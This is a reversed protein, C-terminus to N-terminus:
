LSGTRVSKIFHVTGLEHKHNTHIILSSSGNKAAGIRSSIPTAVQGNNRNSIGQVGASQATM